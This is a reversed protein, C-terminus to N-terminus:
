RRLIWGYFRGNVSLMSLGRGRLCILTVFELNHCCGAIYHVDTTDPPAVKMDSM